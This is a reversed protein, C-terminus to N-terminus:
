IKTSAINKNIHTVYPIPSAMGDAAAGEQTDSINAFSSIEPHLVAVFVPITEDFM